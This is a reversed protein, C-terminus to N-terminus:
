AYVSGIVFGNGCSRNVKREEKRRVNEQAMFFSFGQRIKKVCAYSNQIDAHPM